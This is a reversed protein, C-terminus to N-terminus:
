ANRCPYKSYSSCKLWFVSYLLSGELCHTPRLRDPSPRVLVAHRVAVGGGGLPLIGRAQGGRFPSAGEPKCVWEGSDRCLRDSRVDPSKGTGYDRMLWSRIFREGYVDTRNTTNRQLLRVLVSAVETPELQNVPEQLVCTQSASSSRRCRGRDPSLVPHHGPRPLATASEAPLSCVLQM